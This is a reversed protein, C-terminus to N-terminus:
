LNRDPTFGNSLRIVFNLKEASELANKCWDGPELEFPHVLLPVANTVPTSEQKRSHPRAFHLCPLVTGRCIEILHSDTQYDRFEPKFKKSLELENRQGTVPRLNLHIRAYPCPM